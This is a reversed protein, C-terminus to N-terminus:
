AYAAEGVRRYMLRKGGIGRLAEDTRMTDNIGLGIRNSYRFDFEALYRKLHAESVHHFTGIIGRKLLSFFGEVTNSHTTADGKRVYENKGHNVTGHAVFETGVNRYQGAEDTMLVSERRVQTRLIPNLTKGTVNAVHFSRARGNREVLTFVVQKGVAGINKPNRKSLRKNKEKGGIVSEDAEVTRGEGGLPAHHSETMAERIRHCMFWATKYTVDLSRGIQHASIGKKSSAMLYTALLWKNLPVKSREFVTGVTITFQDRCANCQYLGARASRGKIATAENIVGCHPCVPGHPWRTQELHARAKDPDTFIPDTLNM